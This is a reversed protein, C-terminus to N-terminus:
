KQPCSSAKCKKGDLFEKLTIDCEEAFECVCGFFHIHKQSRNRLDIPICYTKYKPLKNDM